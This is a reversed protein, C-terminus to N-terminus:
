GEYNHVYTIDNVWAQDPADHTFQRQLQNPSTLSPRGIRYRLRKYGGISRLQSGWSGQLEIKESCNIGAERLDHHICSNGYIGM